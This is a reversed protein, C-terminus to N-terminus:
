QSLYFYFVDPHFSAIPFLQTAFDTKMNCWIEQITRQKNIYRQLTTCPPCGRFAKFLVIRRNNALARLQSNTQSIAKARFCSNFVQLVIWFRCLNLPLSEAQKLSGCAVNFFEREFRVANLTKANFVRSESFSKGLPYFRPSEALLPQVPRKAPDRPASRGLTVRHIYTFKGGFCTSKAWTQTKTLFQFRLPKGAWKSCV